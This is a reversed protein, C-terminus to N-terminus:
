KTRSFSKKNIDHESVRSSSAAEQKITELLHASQPKPVFWSLGPIYQVLYPTWDAHDINITLQELEQCLKNFTLTGFELNRTITDIAHMMGKIRRSIESNSKQAYKEQLRAIESHLRDIIKKAHQETVRYQETQEKIAQDVSEAGIVISRSLNERVSVALEKDSLYFCNFMYPIAQNVESEAIHRILYDLDACVYSHPSVILGLKLLERKIKETQLPSVAERGTRLLWVGDFKKLEEAFYPKKITELIGPEDENLLAIKLLLLKSKQAQEYIKNLQECINAMSITEPNNAIHYGLEALQDRIAKDPMYSISRLVEGQGRVDVASAFRTEPDCLDVEQMRKQDDLSKIERGRLVVYGLFQMMTLAFAYIDVSTDYKFTLCKAMKRAVMEPKTYLLSGRLCTLTNEGENMKFSFGFDILEAEAKILDVRVNAPKIDCHLIRQQHLQNLREAIRKIAALRLIPPIVVHHKTYTELDHGHAYNMVIHFKQRNRRYVVSTLSLAKLMEIEAVYIQQLTRHVPQSFLYSQPQDSQHLRISKVIKYEAELCPEYSAKGNPKWAVRATLWVRGYSGQSIKKVVAYLEDQHRIISYKLGLHALVHKSIRQNPAQLEALFSEENKVVAYMEEKMNNYYDCLTAVQQQNLVLGTDPSLLEVDLEAPYPQHKITSILNQRLSM